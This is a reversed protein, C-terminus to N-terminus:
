KLQGSGLAGGDQCYRPWMDFMLGEAMNLIDWSFFSCSNSMSVCGCDTKPEIGIECMAWIPIEMSGSAFRKCCVLATTLM